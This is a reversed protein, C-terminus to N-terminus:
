FKYISTKSTELADKVIVYNSALFYYILNESIFVYSVIGFISYIICYWNFKICYVEEIFARCYITNKLLLRWRCRQKILFNFSM